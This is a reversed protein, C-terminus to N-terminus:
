RQVAFDPSTVILYLADSVRLQRLDRQYKVRENATYPFTPNIEWGRIQNRVYKRTGSSLMDPSGLLSTAISDLLDDVDDAVRVEDDIKLYFSDEGQTGQSFNTRYHTQVFFFWGMQTHLNENALQLEPSVFGADAIEGPPAYFPSFFNFVSPSEGPSQGFIHVPSSGYVPCCFSFTSVKGSPAAADYARWLQTLRLLPEKVKGATQSASLVRAESDLLIAKIVATLNGRVGSGDNNFVAAVRSVYERSPNSTVLKQILQKSIFPAVNPHNFVNDLAERLDREGGLNAPLLGNPVAVGPYNLLQKTGNEHQEPFYGMPRVQNFNQQTPWADMNADAFRCGVPNYSPCAWRWGTFVRAFGRITEQDYTPIPQGASDLKRTGDPNLQVLGISFLQMMERAYNEDPRINSGEIAKQNGLMSLYVGMAPHLTVDELLQRYNGFANRSLMDYFDATAWPMFLLANTGSVVMIQSLAWAVRQRLQDDGYLANKFWTEIRTIHPRDPGFSDPRPDPVAAITAPLQLSIPKAIQEDIWREYANAASGLEMLRQIDRETPGFSAQVLFRHADLRSSPSSVDRAVARGELFGFGIYHRAAAATDTGFASRLDLHNSLYAVANFTARRGEQYGFAIYHKTAAVVDTGFAGILDAYSAIYALANFTVRRGESFGWQIFHKTAAIVDTAFAAMLDAHSAIYALADFDSQRGEAYGYLIYNKTAETTNLGFAKILDGHSAIHRLPDFNGASRNEKFGDNIYHRTAQLEDVKFAVMLDPHTAIYILPEFTIKRGEKLGQQEYHSRGKSADAGFAQILDGHSAIYRLADLDSLPAASAIAARHLFSFSLFLWVGIWRAAFLGTGGRRVM